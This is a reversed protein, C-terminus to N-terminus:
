VSPGQQNDIKFKATHVCGDWVGLRDRERVKEEMAMLERLRCTQKQKTCINM